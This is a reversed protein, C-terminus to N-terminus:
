PNMFLHVVYNGDTAICSYTYDKKLNAEHSASSLWANLIMKENLYGESINEAVDETPFYNRVEKLFLRHSYDTKLQDLRTKAYRCLRSNEVYKTKQNEVRWEQVLSWLKEKEIEKVVLPTPLSASQDQKQMEKKVFLIAGFLIVFVFVLNVSWVAHINKM